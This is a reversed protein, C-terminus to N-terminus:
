PRQTIISHQNPEDIKVFTGSKHPSNIIPSAVSIYPFFTYLFDRSGALNQQLFQELFYNILHFFHYIKIHLLISVINDLSSM